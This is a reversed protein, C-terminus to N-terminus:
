YYYFFTVNDPKIGRQLMEDFLKEAIDLERTKRLVKLTVNYLVVERCLKLKNQFFQLALM